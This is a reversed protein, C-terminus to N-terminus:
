FGLNSIVPAPFGVGSRDSILMNPQRWPIASLFAERRVWMGAGVTPAITGTFTLANNGNYDNVALLHRRRYISPPPEVEWEPYLRCTVLGLVLTLLCPQEKRFITPIPSIITMSFVCWREEVPWSAAYVHM